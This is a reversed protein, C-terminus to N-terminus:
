GMQKAQCHLFRSGAGTSQASIAGELGRETPSPSPLLILRIYKPSSVSQEQIPSYFLSDSRPSFFIGLHYHYNQGKGVSIVCLLHCGLLKARGDWIALCQRPQHGVLPILISSALFFPCGEDRGAQGASSCSSSTAVTGFARRFSVNCEAEWAQLEPLPNSHNLWSPPSGTRSVFSLENIHQDWLPQRPVFPALHGGRM